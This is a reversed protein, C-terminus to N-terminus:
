KELSRLPRIPAITSIAHKFLFQQKGDTEMAIGTDDFNRVIGRVQFGNMLYITIPVRENVIEELMKEHLATNTSM